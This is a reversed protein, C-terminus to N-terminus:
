SVADSSSRCSRPSAIGIPKTPAASSSTCREEVRLKRWFAAGAIAVCPVVGASRRLRLTVIPVAPAWLLFVAIPERRAGAKVAISAIAWYAVWGLWLGAIVAHAAVPM